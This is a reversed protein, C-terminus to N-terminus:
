SNWERGSLSGFLPISMGNEGNFSGFLPLFSYELLIGKMWELPNEVYKGMGEKSEM